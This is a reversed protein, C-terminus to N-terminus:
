NQVNSSWQWAQRLSSPKKVVLRWISCCAALYRRIPLAALFEIPSAFVAVEIRVSHLLRAVAKRVAADDDVVFVTPARENM